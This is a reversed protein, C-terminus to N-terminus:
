CSLFAGRLPVTHRPRSSYPDRTRDSGVLGSAVFIRQESPEQSGGGGTSRDRRSRPGACGASEGRAGKQESQAICFAEHVNCTWYRRLTVDGCVVETQIPAVLLWDRQHRRALNSKAINSTLGTARDPPLDEVRGQTPWM